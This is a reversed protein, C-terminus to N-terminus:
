VDELWPPREMIFDFGKRDHTDIIVRNPESGFGVLYRYTELSSITEDIDHNELLWGDVEFERNEFDSDESDLWWPHQSELYRLVQLAICKHGQRSGASGWLYALKMKEQQSADCHLIFHIAEDSPVQADIGQLSM